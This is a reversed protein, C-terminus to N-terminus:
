IIISLKMSPWHEFISMFWFFSRRSNALWFDKKAPPSMGTHSECTPSGKPNFRKQWNLRLLIIRLLNPGALAFSVAGFPLHCCCCCCCLPAGIHKHMHCYLTHKNLTEKMHMWTGSCERCHSIWWRPWIVSCCPDESSEPHRIFLLGLIAAIDIVPAAEASMQWGWVRM